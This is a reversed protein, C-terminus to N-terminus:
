GTECFNSAPKTPNKQFGDRDLLRPTGSAEMESSDSVKLAYQAHGIQTALDSQISVIPVM